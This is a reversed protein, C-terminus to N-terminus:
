RYSYQLIAFFSRTFMLSFLKEFVVVRQIYRGWDNQEPTARNPPKRYHLCMRAWALFNNV